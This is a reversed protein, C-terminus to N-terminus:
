ALPLLVTFTSGKGEASTVRVEGDMRLVLNKVISLGLGTGGAASSRAKDVRYFREFIRDLDAEPIGIGSDEVAIAGHRGECRLRVRIRGPAATYQIANDILNDLVQTMAERDGRVLLPERHGEVELTLGKSLLAPERLRLVQQLTERWDLVTREVDLQGSEIRALSLLDGVLNTLRKVNAEIRKLFQVNNQEDHLAGALLTEVFGQISTLPTKLEHSVNAVFDRRVRELRRLDTIDHLVLVVGVKGGGQFPSAHAGFIREKGGRFLEVERLVHKGGARAEELLEKLDSIPALDWLVRGESAVAPIDLLARAAANVFAIRDRDDIAVVGEIMSTLMARLQADEQSLEAIRRTIEAGLGNLTEALQGLEDRRVVHVRREYTGASLERAAQTMEAVPRTLRRALFLGVVLAVLVGIATGSVVSRTAHGIQAGFHSAPLALRVFGLLQGRDEVRRAVYLMEHGVTRSGRRDSGFPQTRAQVVEPRGSHDEMGGPDEASDAVVRGGPLILTLRLDTSSRLRALAAQTEPDGGSRLEDAAFPEMLACQHELTSRLDDFLGVVLRSRVLWGVLLGTAVLVVVYPAFLNWFLRSRLM